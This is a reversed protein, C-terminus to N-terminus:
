SRWGWLPAVLTAIRCRWCLSYGRTGRSYSRDPGAAYCYRQSGCKGRFQRPRCAFEDPCQPQGGSAPRLYALSTSCRIGHRITAQTIHVGEPDGSNYDGADRLGFEKGAELFAQYLPHAAKSRVVSIPGSAGRAPDRGLEFNEM